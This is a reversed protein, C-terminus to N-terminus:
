IDPISGCERISGCLWGGESAWKLHPPGIVGLAGTPFGASPSWHIMPCGEYGRNGRSIHKLRTNFFDNTKGYLSDGRMM